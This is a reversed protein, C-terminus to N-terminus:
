QMCMYNPCAGAAQVLKMVAERRSDEPMAMLGSCESEDLVCVKAAATAKTDRSEGTLLGDLSALLQERATQEQQLQAM